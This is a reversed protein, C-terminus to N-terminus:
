IKSKSITLKLDLFNEHVQEQTKVVVPQMNPIFDKEIVLGKLVGEDSSEYSNQHAKSWYLGFCLNQRIIKLIFYLISYKLFIFHLFGFIIQSKSLLQINGKLDPSVNFYSLKAVMCNEINNMLPNLCLKVKCYLSAFPWKLNYIPVTVFIQCFNGLLIYM